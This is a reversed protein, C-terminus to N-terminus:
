HKKTMPSSNSARRFSDADQSLTRLYAPRPMGRMLRNVTVSTLNTVVSHVDPKIHINACISPPM